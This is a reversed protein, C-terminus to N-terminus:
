AAGSAAPSAADLAPDLNQIVDVVIGAPGALLFHRQGWPETKPPLVVDADPPGLEEFARDVNEVEFSFVLGERAFRPHLASPQSPHDPVLFGLQAGGEHVLHLYWDEDFAPQFGFKSVFFHRCAALEDTVVLPFFAKPKIM